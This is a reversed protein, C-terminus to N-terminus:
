LCGLRQYCTEHEKRNQLAHQEVQRHNLTGKYNGTYIRTKPLHEIPFALLQLGREDSFGYSPM